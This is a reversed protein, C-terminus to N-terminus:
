GELWDKVKGSTIYYLQITYCAGDFLYCVLKTGSIRLSYGKALNLLLCIDKIHTNQIISCKGELWLLIDSCMGRSWTVFQKVDVNFKFSILTKVVTDAFKQQNIKRCLDYENM